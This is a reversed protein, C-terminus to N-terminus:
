NVIAVVVVVSVSRIGLTGLADAAELRGVLM